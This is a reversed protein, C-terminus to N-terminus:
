RSLMYVTIGGSGGGTFGVGTAVAMLRGRPAPVGLGLFTQCRATSTSVTQVLDPIHAWEPTAMDYGYFQITGTATLLAGTAACVTVTLGHYGSQNAALQPNALNIGATQGDGAVTPATRTVPSTTGQTEFVSVNGPSIQAPNTYVPAWTALALVPLLAAILISLLKKM